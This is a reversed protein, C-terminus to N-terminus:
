EGGAEMWSSRPSMGVAGTRGPSQPHALRERVLRHHEVANDLQKPGHRGAHDDVGGDATATMRLGHELSMRLRAQDPDVAVGSGDFRGARGQGAEPAPDREPLGPEVPEAVDEVLEADVTHGAHQEVQ